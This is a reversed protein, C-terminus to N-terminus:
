ASSDIIIEEESFGATEDQLVWSRTERVQGAYLSLIMYSWEPWAADRDFESPVAPHHPHTHYIGVLDMGSRRARKMCEVIERPSVLFRRETGASEWDAAEAGGGIEREAFLRTRAEPDDEWANRVPWAERIIREDGEAYGVLFGCVELPFGARSHQQVVALASLAIRLM